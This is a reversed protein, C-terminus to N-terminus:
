EAEFGGGAGEFGLGYDDGGSAEGDGLHACGVEAVLDGPLEAEADCFGAGCEDGEDEVWVIAVAPAVEGAEASFYDGGGAGAFAFGGEAFFHEDGMAAEASRGDELDGGVPLGALGDLYVEGGAEVDHFRNERGACLDLGCGSCLDKPNRFSPSIRKRAPAQM